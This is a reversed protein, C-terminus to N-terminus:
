PPCQIIIESKGLTLRDGPAIGARAVIQGNLHIPFDPRLNWLTLSRDGDLGIMCQYPPLDADDLPVDASPDRGVVAPLKRVEITTGRVTDRLLVNVTADQAV